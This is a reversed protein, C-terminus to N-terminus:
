HAATPWRVTEWLGSSYAADSFDDKQFPEVYTDEALVGTGEAPETGALGTIWGMNLVMAAALATSLVKKMPGKKM